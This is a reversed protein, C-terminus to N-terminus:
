PVGLGDQPMGSLIDANKNTRNKWYVILPDIEQVQLAYQYIKPPLDKFVQPCTCDNTEFIFDQFSIPM